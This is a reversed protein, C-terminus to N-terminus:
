WQSGIIYPMEVPNFIQYQYLQKHNIKQSYYGAIVLNVQPVIGFFHDVQVLGNITYFVAKAFIHQHPPRVRFLTRHKIYPCRYIFIKRGAPFGFLLRAQLHNLCPLM